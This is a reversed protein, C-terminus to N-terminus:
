ARIKSAQKARATENAIVCTGAFRDYLSQRRDSLAASVLNAAVLAWVLTFGAAHLLVAATHPFAAHWILAHALEWPLFKLATRCFSRGITLRAGETTIVRLHLFRKGWTAQRASAEAIVFYLSVPLTFALFGSLEGRLSSGFLSAALAPASHQISAGAASVVCLYLAVPLFDLVFAQLRPWPGTFRCISAVNKELYM